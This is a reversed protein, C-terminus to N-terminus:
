KTITNSTYPGSHHICRLYTHVYWHIYIPSLIAIEAGNSHRLQIDAAAGHRSAGAATRAPSLLQQRVQWYVDRRSPVERIRGRRLAKTAACINNICLCTMTWWRVRYINDTNWRMSGRSLLSSLARQTCSTAFWRCLRLWSNELYPFRSVITLPPPYAAAVAVWNPFKLMRKRRLGAGDHYWKLLFHIYEYYIWTSITTLNPQYAGTEGCICPHFPELFTRATHAPLCRATRQCLQWWSFLDSDNCCVSWERM